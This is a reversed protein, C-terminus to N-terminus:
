KKLLDDYHEIKFNLRELARDMDERKKILKEREAILINRREKENKEGNDYLELYKKLAEISVGANRMCVIFGIRKLDGELYNRIGNKRQIKPLIKEKEYYRLTYETINFQKTVEKITM